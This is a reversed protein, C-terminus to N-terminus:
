LNFAALIKILSPQPLYPVLDIPHLMPSAPFLVEPFLVEPVMPSHNKSTFCSHIYPIDCTINSLNLVERVRSDPVCSTYDESESWSAM